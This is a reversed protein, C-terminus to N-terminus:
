DDEVPRDNPQNLKGTLSKGLNIPCMSSHGKGSDETEEERDTKIGLGNGLRIRKGL